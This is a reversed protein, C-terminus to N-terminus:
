DEQKLQYMSAYTAIQFEPFPLFTFDDEGAEEAGPYFTVPIDRVNVTDNAYEVAQTDKKLLRITCVIGGSELPDGADMLVATIGKSGDMQFENTTKSVVADPDVLFGHAEIVAWNYYTKLQEPDKRICDMVADLYRACKNETSHVSLDFNSLDAKGSLESERRQRQHYEEVKEHVVLGLRGLNTIVFLAAVFGVVVLIQQKHEYYFKLFWKRLM